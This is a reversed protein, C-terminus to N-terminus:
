VRSASKVQKAEAYPGGSVLVRTAPDLGIIGSMHECFSSYTSRAALALVSVHHLFPWDQRVPHVQLAACVKAVGLTV